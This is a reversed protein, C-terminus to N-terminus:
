EYTTIIKTKTKKFVEEVETDYFYSDRYYCWSFTFYKSDEHRQIIVEHCEGDGNKLKEDVYEYYKGDFEVVDGKGNLNILCDEPMDFVERKVKEAM